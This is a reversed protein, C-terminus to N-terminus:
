ISQYEGDAIKARLRPRDLVLDGGDFYVRYRREGKRLAKMRYRTKLQNGQVKLSQM